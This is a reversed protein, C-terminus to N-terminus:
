WLWSCCNPVLTPLDTPMGGTVTQTSVQLSGGSCQGQCVHTDGKRPLSVLLRNWFPPSFPCELSSQANQTGIKPGLFTVIAREPAMFM